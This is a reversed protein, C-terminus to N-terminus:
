AALRRGLRERRLIAGVGLVGAFLMSWTAPEPVGGIQFDAIVISQQAPVSFTLGSFPTTSVWGIFDTAGITATNPVVSTFGNSLAFTATTSSFLTSYDLGFATVPAAFNISITDPVMGSYVSNVVYPATLDGSGYFGASDVNVAGNLNATSFSVGRLGPYGALPNFGNFCSTGSCYPLPEDNFNGALLPGAAADFGAATTYATTGATAAGSFGIAAIVALAWATTHKRSAV